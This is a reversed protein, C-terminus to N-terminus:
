QRSAPSQTVSGAAVLDIEVSDSVRLFLTSPNKMGWKEYPITFHTTASWHDSAIQIEVPVEIDRYVGHVQFIGHLKVSSKGPTLVPGSVRDPRFLIEPYRESEIVDKHMKRDRIGNGSQGSKADVVIEGSIKGSAPDFQLAGPKAQFTGHVTHLAAALTFRVSTKASDLQLTETQAKASLAPASIFAFVVLARISCNHTSIMKLSHTIGM